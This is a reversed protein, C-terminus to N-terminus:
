AAKGANAACVEVISLAISRTDLLNEDCTPLDLVIETDPSLRCATERAANVVDGVALAIPFAGGADTSGLLGLVFPIDDDGTRGKVWVFARGASATPEIKLFITMSM